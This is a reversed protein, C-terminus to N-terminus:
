LFSDKLGEVNIQNIARRKPEQETQAYVQHALGLTKDGILDAIMKVDVQVGGMQADNLTRTAFTRRLDKFQLNEIKLRRMTNIWRLTVAHSTITFLRDTIRYDAVYKKIVELLFDHLVIDLQTKAKKSTKNPMVDWIIGHDFDIDQVRLKLIDSLRLGTLCAILVLVKFYYDWVNELILKIEEPSAVRSRPIGAHFLKIKGALPNIEIIDYETLRRFLASIYALEKDISPKSVELLRATKYKEVDARRLESVPKDGVIEILYKCVYKIQNYSKLVYHGAAINEIYWQVAESLSLVGTKGAKASRKRTSNNKRGALMRHFDDDNSKLVEAMWLESEKKNRHDASWRYSQGSRSFQIYYVKGKVSERAYVKAMFWGM